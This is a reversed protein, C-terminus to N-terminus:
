ATFSVTVDGSSQFSATVTAEGTVSVSNSIDTIFATCEYYDTGDTELKLTYSSGVTLVGLTGTDGDTMHGSFSGTMNKLGTITSKHTPATDAFATSDYTAINYDASWERIAVLSTADILVNGGKGSINAM